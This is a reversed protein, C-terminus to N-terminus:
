HTFTTQPLRNPAASITKVFSSAVIRRGADNLHAGDSSLGAALSPVDDERAARDGRETDAVDFIVDRSGYEARLKKSLAERVVNDSDTSTAMGLMRRVRARWDLDQVVLPVTAHMFTVNPYRRSLGDVTTKYANFVSDIDTHRRIDWFCFKLVAVDVRSGIGADLANRFANIKSLPDGNQGVPAHLLAPERSVSEGGTQVINFSPWGETSAIQRLGDIINDGVSQHGFFVTRTRAREWEARTVISTAAPMSASGSPRACVIAGISLVSLVSLTVTRFVFSKM